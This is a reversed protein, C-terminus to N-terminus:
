SQPSVASRKQADFLRIAQRWKGQVPREARGETPDEPLANGELVRLLKEQNQHPLRNFIVYSDTGHGEMPVFNMSGGLHKAYLRALPLGLGIGQGWRKSTQGRYSWVDALKSRPLGGANDAVKITVNEESAAIIVRIEPLGSSLRLGSQLHHKVTAKTANNLLEGVVFQIHSPPFTMTAEKDGFVEIHPAAGYVDLVSRHAEAALEEIVASPSCEEQVIGFTGPPQAEARSALFHEMLFSSAIRASFFADLFGSMEVEDRGSPSAAQIAELAQGFATRTEGVQAAFGSSLQLEAFRQEDEMTEIPPERFLARLRKWYTAKLGQVQPQTILKRLYSGGRHEARLMMSLMHTGRAVQERRVLKANLIIQEDTRFKAAHLLTALSLRTPPMAMSLARITKRCASAEDGELVAKM